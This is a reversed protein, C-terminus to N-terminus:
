LAEEGRSERGSWGVRQAHDKRDLYAKRAEDGNLCRVTERVLPSKLITAAQNRTIGDERIRDMFDGDGMVNPVDNPVENDDVSHALGLNHSVEHIVVFADQGLPSNGAQAIFTVWGPQQGLGNPAPRGNIKKAFVM